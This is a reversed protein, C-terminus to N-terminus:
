DEKGILKHYHNDNLSEQMFIIKLFRKKEEETLEVSDSSDVDPYLHHKRCYAILISRKMEELDNDFNAKHWAFLSVMEAHQIATMEVAIKGGSLQIYSLRNRNAVKYYCQAFLELYIKNRGVKFYYSRVQNEDFLEEISVGHEKCLKELLRRANDAEGQVGREALALLKKLKNKLSEYEEM